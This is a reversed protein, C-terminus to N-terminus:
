DVRADWATREAENRERDFSWLPQVAEHRGGDRAVRRYALLPISIFNLQEFGM